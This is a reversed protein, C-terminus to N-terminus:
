LDTFSCRKYFISGANDISPLEIHTGEFDFDIDVDKVITALEKSLMGIEKGECIKKRVANEPIEECHAFLEEM